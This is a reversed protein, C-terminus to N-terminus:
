EPFARNLAEFIKERSHFRSAVSKVNEMKKTHGTRDSVIESLTQSIEALDGSVFACDYEELYEVSSVDRPGVAWILKGSKFYDTIKTSFSLWTKRKEKKDFSEAFVLVDCSKKIITQLESYPVAACLECASEVTRFAQALQPTLPDRSYIKLRHATGYKANFDRLAEAIKLLIRDRGYLLNGAYLFNMADSCDNLVSLPNESVCEVPKTLLVTERGLAADYERKMKPSIVFVTTARCVLYRQLRRFFFQKWYYYFPVSKYTFSDDVFFLVLQAGSQKLLWKAVLGQFGWKSVPFFIVDVPNEKLFCKLSREKWLGLAWACERACNLIFSALPNQSLAKFLKKKPNQAYGSASRPNLFAEEPLNRGVQFSPSLLKKPFGIENIQFIKGCAQTDPMEPSFYISYLNEKPCDSFLQQSTNDGGQDRWPYSSLILIKTDQKKMKSNM